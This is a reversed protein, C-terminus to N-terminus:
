QLLTQCTLLYWVAVVKELYSLIEIKDKGQEIL